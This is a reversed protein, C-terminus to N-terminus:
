GNSDEEKEYDYFPCEVELEVEGTTEWGNSLEEGTETVVYYHGFDEQLRAEADELSDAEVHIWGTKTVTFCYEKM